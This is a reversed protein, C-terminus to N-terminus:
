NNVRDYKKEVEKKYKDSLLDITDGNDFTIIKETKDVKVKRDNNIFCSRHTQIFRDDLMEIVETLSKNIKIENYDTKIVTRREYSDKTIYLIDKLDITYTVNRDNIRIIKRTKLLDLAKLLSNNLRNEFDDFKNIFSLFMLDNKLIINGLEEHGTLFIIVSDVDNKRIKRAVDIGSESSTEIDLIYIKLPMKTNVTNYFKKNYDDFIHNNNKLEKRKMFDNVINIAKERDNKNDDCIIVNIM